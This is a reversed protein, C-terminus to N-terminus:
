EEKDYYYIIEIKVDKRPPKDFKLINDQVDFDKFKKTFNFWLWKYTKFGEYYYDPVITIYPNYKRKKLYIKIDILKPIIYFPKM